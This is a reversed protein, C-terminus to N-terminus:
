ASKNYTTVSISVLRHRSSAEIPNFSSARRLRTNISTFARPSHDRVATRHNYRLRRYLRCPCWVINPAPKLPISARRLRTNISTLARPWFNRFPTRQNYQLCKYYFPLYIVIVIYCDKGYILKQLARTYYHTAATVAERIPSCCM